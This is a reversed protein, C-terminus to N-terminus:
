KILMEVTLKKKKKIAERWVNYKSLIRGKGWSRGSLDEEMGRGVEHAKRLESFM